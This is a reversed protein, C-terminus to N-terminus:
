KAIGYIKIFSGAVMNEGNHTYFRIGDVQGANKWMGWFRGLRYRSSSAFCGGLGTIMTKISASNFGTIIFEANGFVNADANGGAFIYRGIWIADGSLNNETTGTDGEDVAVRSYNNGTDYSSGTSFRVRIGTSADARDSRVCIVVKLAAFDTLASSPIPIDVSGVDSSHEWSAVLELDGGSPVAGGDKILKGTAGDFVALHGDTASAPGVVDGSGGGGGGSKLVVVRYADTGPPSSFAVNVTDGDVITIASADATAEVPDAGTLDWLQVIIDETGLSHVVDFDSEIGDGITEAYAGTPLTVKTADNVADDEVDFGILNLAARQTMPTGADQIEHGGGGGGEGPVIKDEYEDYVLADGDAILALDVTIGGIKVADHDLDTIDAEVHTHVGPAVQGEGTGITHHIGDTTDIDNAHKEPYGDADWAARDGALPIGKPM